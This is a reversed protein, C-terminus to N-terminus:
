PTHHDAANKRFWWYRTLVRRLHEFVEFPFRSGQCLDSTETPFSSPTTIVLCLAIHINQVVRGSRKAALVEPVASRMM